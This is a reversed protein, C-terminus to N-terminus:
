GERRIAAQLDRTEDLMDREARSRWGTTYVCQAVPVRQRDWPWYRVRIPHAGTRYKGSLGTGCLPCRKPTM